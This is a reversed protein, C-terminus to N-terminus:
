VDQVVRGRQLAGHIHPMDFTQFRPPASPCLTYKTSETYVIEAQCVKRPAASPSPKRPPKRTMNLRDQAKRMGEESAFMRVHRHSVQLKFLGGNAVMRACMASVRAREHGPIDGTGMGNPRAAAALIKNRLEHNLRLDTTMTLQPKQEVAQSPWPCDNPRHGYGGCRPCAKEIM